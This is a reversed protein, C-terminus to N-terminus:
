SSQKAPNSQFPVTAMPTAPGDAKSASCRGGGRQLAALDGVGSPTV